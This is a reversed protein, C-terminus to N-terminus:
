ISKSQFYSNIASDEDLIHGIWERMFLRVEQQQWEDTRIKDSVHVLKDLMLNHTLVHQQYDPYGHDKMFSEEAQFHERVHKYLRMANDILDEKRSSKVLQNALDFLQKHQQDVLKNGLLYDDQWVFESM